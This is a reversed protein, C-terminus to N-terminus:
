VCFIFEAEAAGLIYIKLLMLPFRVLVESISYAATYSLYLYPCFVVGVEVAYACLKLCSM